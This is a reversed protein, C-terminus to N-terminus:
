ATGHKNDKETQKHYYKIHHTATVMMFIAMTVIFLCIVAGSAGLFISQVEKTMTADQFTTLMTVELTMMSVCGSALGIARTASYVPSNYRRYRVTSVIALTLSTFTYAALAITIIQGHIFRESERVMFLIMGSLALTMVLLVGGCARYRRWQHQMDEEAQHKATHSILFLRMLVLCLYYATLSYFWFSHSKIGLWLQLLAYGSNWFCAGLLSIFIRMRTNELWYRIYKNDQRIKKVFRILRPTRWCLVLLTYFALVYCLIALISDSGLFLLSYVLGFVSVPILLLLVWWAPSLLRKCIKKLNM